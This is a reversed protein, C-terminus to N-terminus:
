GLGRRVSRLYERTADETHGADNPEPETALLGGLRKLRSELESLLDTSRSGLRKGKEARKAVVDATRDIVEDVDAMVAGIHDTLKLSQRGGTRRGGGGTRALKTLAGELTDVRDAMGQRVADQPGVLRGEGFKPGKVIDATTGRGKAVDAAFLDYGEDVWAQLAERAEEGLPEYPNGETKYKGASILTTKIGLKEDLGSVDEHICFVGISGVQGSPTVILEDAQAALWYAASAALTSAVAIVPKVERAARIDAATESVLSLRGGPSDVNILISAVADDNVAESLSARFAQLGGGGGFLMGLLTGRPLIMGMLPLVAVGGTVNLEGRAALPEHTVARLEDAAIRGGLYAQVTPLTDELIAWPTNVLERDM